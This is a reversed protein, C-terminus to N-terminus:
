KDAQKAPAKAQALRLEAERLYFDAALSDLPSGRGGEFMKRVVQALEQMRKLHESLASVRDEKKSAQDRQANLWRLSWTYVDAQTVGPQFEIWLKVAGFYAKHAAEVRAQALKKIDPEQASLFSTMVLGLCAMGLWLVLRQSPRVNTKM